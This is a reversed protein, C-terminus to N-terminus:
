LSYFFRGYPAKKLSNFGATEHIARHAYIAGVITPLERNSKAIM